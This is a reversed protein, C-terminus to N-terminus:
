KRFGNEIEVLTRTKCAEADGLRCGLSLFFHALVPSRPTGRGSRNMEGTRRCAVPHAGASCAREFLDYAVVPDAYLSDGELLGEALEFCAEESWQHCGQLFLERASQLDPPGGTGKQRLQGARLCSEGDRKTCGRRFHELALPPDYQLRDEGLRGCARGDGLECGRRLWTETEEKGEVLHAYARCAIAVGDGCARRMAQQADLSGPPLRRAHTFCSAGGKRQCSQKCEGFEESRCSPTWDEPPNFPTNLLKWPNTKAEINLPDEFTFHEFKTGTPPLLLRRPVDARRGKADELFLQFGFVTPCSEPKVKFVNTDSRELRAAPAGIPFAAPDGALWAEDSPAQFALSIAKISKFPDDLEVLLELYCHGMGDAVYRVAGGLVSGRLVQAITEAPIAEALNEGEKVPLAFAALAGSSDVIPGGSFGRSTSIDFQLRSLVRARDFQRALLMAPRAQRKLSANKGPGATRKARKVTAPASDDRVPRFGFVELASTEPLGHSKGLKLSSLQALRGGELVSIGEEASVMLVKAEVSAAEDSPDTSVRPIKRGRRGTVQDHTLDYSTLVLQRGAYGILVGAGSGNDGRVYVTARDARARAKEDLAAAPAQEAPPDWDNWQLKMRPGSEAIFEALAESPVVFSTESGRVFATAVGIVAGEADVVPGGSNGPNISADITLAPLDAPLSALRKATRGASFTVSPYAGYGALSLGLPFGAVFTATGVPLGASKRLPMTRARVESDDVTLLALDRKKDSAIVKARIPVPKSGAGFVVHVKEGNVEPGAVHANTALVLGESSRGLVFASGSGSETLVLATGARVESLVSEALTPKPVPVFHFTDIARRFDAEVRHFNHQPATGILFFAHDGQAFMGILTEVKVGDRSEEFRAWRAEDFPGEIREGGLPKFGPSKQREGTIQKEREALDVGGAGPVHQAYFVLQASYRPLVLWHDSVLQESIPPEFLAFWRQSGLECGYDVETGRLETAPEPGIKGRLRLVPEALLADGTFSAYLGIAVVVVSALAGVTGGFARWRSPEGLLLALLAFTAVGGIAAQFLDKTAAAIVLVGAIGLVARARSLTLALRLGALVLLGLVVDIASAVLMGSAFRQDLASRSAAILSSAGGVLMLAAGVRHAAVVREPVQLRRAARPAPPRPTAGVATRQLAAARPSSPSAIRAAAAIAPAARPLPATPMPPAAAAPPEGPPTARGAAQTSGMEFWASTTRTLLVADAPPTANPELPPADDLDIDIGLDFDGDGALQPSPEDRWSPDIEIAQPTERRPESGLPMVPESAAEAWACVAEFACNENSQREISRLAAASLVFTVLNFLTLWLDTRRASVEALLRTLDFIAFISWGIVLGAWCLGLLLLPVSLGEAGGASRRLWVPATLVRQPLQALQRLRPALGSDSDGDLRRIRHRLEVWAGLAVVAVVYAALRLKGPLHGGKGLPRQLDSLWDIFLELVNLSEFFAGALLILIALQAAIRARSLQDADWISDSQM